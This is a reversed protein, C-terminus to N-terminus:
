DHVKIQFAAQDGVRTADRLHVYQFRITGKGEDVARFTWREQTCVGQQVERRDCRQTGVYQVNDSGDVLRWAYDKWGHDPLLISFDQGERVDIRQTPPGKGINVDIDIGAPAPSSVVFAAVMVFGSIMAKIPNM